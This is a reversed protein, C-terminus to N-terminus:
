VALRRWSIFRSGSSPPPPPPPPPPLVAHVSLQSPPRSPPPALQTYLYGTRFSDDPATPQSESYPNSKTRSCDAEKPLRPTRSFSVPADRVDSPIFFRNVAVAGGSVGTGSATGCRPWTTQAARIDYEAGRRQADTLAATVDHPRRSPRPSPSPRPSTMSFSHQNDNRAAPTNLLIPTRPGSASGVTKVPCKGPPTRRPSPDSGSATDSARPELRPVDYSAYKDSLHPPKPPIPTPSQSITSNQGRCAARSQAGFTSEIYVPDLHAPYRPSAKARKQDSAAKPSSIAWDTELAGDRNESASFRAMYQAWHEGLLQKVFAEYEDLESILAALQDRNLDSLDLSRLRLLPLGSHSVASEVAEHEHNTPSRASSPRLDYSSPGPIPPTKERCGVVPARASPCSNHLRRKGGSLFYCESNKLFQGCIAERARPPLDHENCFEAENARSRKKSDCPLRFSGDLHRTEM